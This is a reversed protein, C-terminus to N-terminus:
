GRVTTVDPAVDYPRHGWPPKYENKKRKRKKPKQKKAKPAKDPDYGHDIANLLRIQKHAKRLTTSEAKTGSPSTVKVKGGKTPTIRYPM